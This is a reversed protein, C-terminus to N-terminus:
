LQEEQVAVELLDAAQRALVDFERFEETSPQHPTRWHTSIMGVVNGARAILPTTQCAHIGTELYIRQDESDAMFDCTAIDPAVVRQSDRLAIGCTSKSDARVWEWFRAAEASFGRFALLRLEGGPGRKPFLMQMSAFDSRMLVVALDIIKEYASWQSTGPLPYPDEASVHEQRKKFEHAALAHNLEQVLRQFTSPDKEAVVDMAIEKWPRRKENSYSM